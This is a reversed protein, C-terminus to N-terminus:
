IILKKSILDRSILFFVVGLCSGIVDAILDFISFSRFPVFYQHVEDGLGYISSISVSFLINRTANFLLFGLVSYEAVHFSFKTPDITNIMEPFNLPISSLYFIVLMYALVLIYNKINQMM